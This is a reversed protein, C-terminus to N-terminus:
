DCRDLQAILKQFQKGSKSSIVSAVTMQQIVADLRKRGAQRERVIRAETWVRALPYRMAAAHGFELM